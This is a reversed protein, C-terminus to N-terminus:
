PLREPKRSNTRLTFEAGANLRLTSRIGLAFAYALALGDTADHPLRGVGQLGLLSSLCRAVLEKSAHGDGTVRKKAETPM